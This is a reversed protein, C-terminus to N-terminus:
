GATRADTRGTGVRLARAAVLTLAGMWLAWSAPEPVSSISLMPAQFDRPDLSWPPTGLSDFAVAIQNGFGSNSWRWTGSNTNPDGTQTVTTALSVWYNTGAQLVPHLTSNVSYAAYSASAVGPASIAELLAGPANGADAWLRVVFDVPVLGFNVTAQAYFSISGVAGTAIPALRLAPQNYVNSVEGVLYGFADSASPGFQMSDYLTDALAFAPTLLAAAMAAGGAWALRHARAPSGGPGRGGPGRVNRTFRQMHM